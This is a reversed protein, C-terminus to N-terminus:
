ATVELWLNINQEEGFILFRSRITQPWVWTLGGMVKVITKPNLTQSSKQRMTIM